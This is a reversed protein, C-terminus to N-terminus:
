RATVHLGRVANRAAHQRRGHEAVARDHDGIARLDVAGDRKGDARPAQPELMQKIRADVVDRPQNCLRLFAPLPPLSSLPPSAPQVAEDDVRGGAARQQAGSPTTVAAPYTLLSRRLIGAARQGMTDGMPTRHMYLRARDPNLLADSVLHQVDHIGAARVTNLLYTLGGLGGGALAGEFGHFLHGGMAGTVVAGLLSRAQGGHGGGHKVIQAANQTTDSGGALKSGSVSRNARDLDDAVNTFTEMKKPEFALRLVPALDSVVGKYRNAKIAKEGTTGAESPSMFERSVADAMARRLGARADANGQTERVLRGVQAMRDDANMAKAVRNVVEDASTAPSPGATTTQASIGRRPPPRARRTSRDAM